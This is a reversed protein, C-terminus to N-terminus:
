ITLQISENGRMSLLAEYFKRIPLAVGSEERLLNSKPMWGIAEVDKGPRMYKLQLRDSLKASYVYGEFRINRNHDGTFDIKGMYNGLEVRAGTEERVERFVTERLSEGNENTGGPLSWKGAYPHNKRLVVLVEERAGPNEVYGFAGVVRGVSQQM